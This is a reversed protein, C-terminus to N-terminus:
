AMVVIVARRMVPIVTQTLIVMLIVKIVKVGPLEKIIQNTIVTQMIVARVEPSQEQLFLKLNPHPYPSRLLPM